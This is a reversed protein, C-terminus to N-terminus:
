MTISNYQFHNMSRFFQAHMKLGRANDQVLMNNHKLSIKQLAKNNRFINRSDPVNGLAAEAM